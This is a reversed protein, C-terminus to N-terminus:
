LNLVTCQRPLADSSCVGKSTLCFGALLTRVRDRTPRSRESPAANIIRTSRIPLLRMSHDLLLRHMELREGRGLQRAMIPSGQPVHPPSPRIAFEKLPLSARH